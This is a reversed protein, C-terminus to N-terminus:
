RGHELLWLEARVSESSWAITRGDKSWAPLSFDDGRWVLAIEGTASDRRYMRWEATEEKAARFYYASGDPAWVGVYDWLDPQDIFPETPRGDLFATRLGDNDGDASAYLMYTLRQGDPHWMLGQKYEPEDAPTVPRPEGGAAPVVFVRNQSEEQGGPGEWGLAALYRGDPSWRVSWGDWEWLSGVRSEEGGERPVVYLGSGRTFAIRSGDPSWQPVSSEDSAVVALRRTADGSASVVYIGRETESDAPYALSTGDPAVDFKWLSSTGAIPGRAIRRPSGGSRQVAFLGENGPGEGEYYITSGDPSPRPWRGRVLPISEDMGGQSVRVTSRTRVLVYSIDGDGVVTPYVVDADNYFTVQEPEGIRRGTSEDVGVRFVNSSGGRDSVFYLHGDTGWAPHRNFGDGHTVQLARGGNSPLLWIHRAAESDGRRPLDLALWHGGPSYDGLLPQEASPLELLDSSEGEPSVTGVYGDITYAIAAGDPRWTLDRIWGPRTPIKQLSGDQVDIVLIAATTDSEVSRWGVAIRTGDPSWRPADSWIMSGGDPGETLLTRVSAGSRESVYVGARREGPVLDRFVLRRGDSALDYPRGRNSSPDDAPIRDLVLTYTPAPGAPDAPMASTAGQLARLRRRAHRAAELQDPYEEIVRLYDLAAERHEVREHLRAMQVLATAVLARDQAYEVVIRRYLQLAGEVRGEARELVLARQFLDYGAQAAVSPPLGLALGLACTVIFRIM